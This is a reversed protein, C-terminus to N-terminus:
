GWSYGFSQLCQGHIFYLIVNRGEYRMKRGLRSLMESMIEGNMWAKENSFYHVGRPRSPDKLNRFCRPIKSRWIVVPEDVKGGDASVFFVTTLRAKSKKSGKISKAKQVLARNPLLKFFLELEDMNWIDQLEYDKVLEPIREILSRITAVPVDDAEGSLRTERIGYRAKFSELWGNSATFNILNEDALQEKIKLAEEQLMRGFPYIGAACCKGYWKYLIENIVSYTAVRSTKANGKFLEYEKRIDKSQKLVNAAATKGISFETAIDRCSKKPNKSAYDLIRIKDELNLRNRKLGAALQHKSQAM